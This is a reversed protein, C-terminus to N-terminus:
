HVVPSAGYKRGEIIRVRAAEALVAAVQPSEVRSTPENFARRVADAVYPKRVARYHRQTTAESAHGAQDQAAAVSGTAEIIHTISSSRLDKLSLNAPLARAYLVFGCRECREGAAPKRPEVNRCTARRCVAEWGRVLGARKVATKFARAAERLQMPHGVANLFLEEGPVAAVIERLVELAPQPLDAVRARGTKTTDSGATRRIHLQAAAMDVDSKRAALLEGPRAATYFGLLVLHRLGPFSAERAIALVEERTLAKPSGRPVPISAVQKVPNQEVARDKRLWEFLASITNRVHRRTQQSYGGDKMSALLADVQTPRLQAAPVKGLAPLIHLRWRGEISKLSRHHRIAKLYRKAASEITEASPAVSLGQVVRLARMELEHALTKAAAASTGVPTAKEHWKGDAGKYRAYRRM